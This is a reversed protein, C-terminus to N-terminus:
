ISKFRYRKYLELGPYESPEYFLEAIGAEVLHEWAGIAGRMPNTDSQLPKNFLAQAIANMALYRHTGYGLRRQQEATSTTWVTPLADNNNIECYFEGFGISEGSALIDALYVARNTAGLSEYHKEHTAYYTSVRDDRELKYLADFKDISIASQRTSRGSVGEFFDVASKPVAEPSIHIIEIAEYARYINPSYKYSESM